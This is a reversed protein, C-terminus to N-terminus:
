VIVLFNLQVIAELLQLVLVLSHFLHFDEDLFSFIYYDLRVDLLLEQGEEM